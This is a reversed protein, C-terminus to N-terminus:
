GNLQIYLRSILWRCLVLPSTGVNFSMWGMNILKDSLVTPPLAKHDGLLALVHRQRGGYPAHDYAKIANVSTPRSQPWLDTARLERRERQSLLPSCPGLWPLLTLLLRSVETGDLKGGQKRGERAGPTPQHRMRLPALLSAPATVGGVGEKAEYASPTPTWMLPRGVWFNIFYVFIFCLYICPFCAFYSVM